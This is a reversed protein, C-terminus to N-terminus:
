LGGHPDIGAMPLSRKIALLRIRKTLHDTVSGWQLIVLIVRGESRSRSVPSRTQQGFLTSVIMYANTYVCKHVSETRLPFIITEM